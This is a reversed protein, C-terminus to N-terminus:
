RLKFTRIHTKEVIHHSFLSWLNDPISPNKSPSIIVLYTCHNALITCLLNIFKCLHLAYSCVIVDYQIEGLKNHFAIDEFSYNHVNCGTTTVYLENTYPDAGEINKYGNSQLALTAEGSGCALDLFTYGLPFDLTCMAKVIRSHHPNKYTHSNQRYYAEVGITNYM